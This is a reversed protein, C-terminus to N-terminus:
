KIGLQSLVMQRASYSPFYFRKVKKIHSQHIELVWEASLEAKRQVVKTIKEKIVFDKQIDIRTQAM